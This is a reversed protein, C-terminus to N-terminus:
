AAADAFRRRRVGLFAASRQRGTDLSLWAVCHPNHPIWETLLTTKGFGAPASILTLRRDDSVILRETLRSRDVVTARPRRPPIFLKTALVPLMAAVIETPWRVVFRPYGRAASSSTKNYCFILRNPLITELHAFPEHFGLSEDQM